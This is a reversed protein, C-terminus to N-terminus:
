PPRTREPRAASPRHFPMRWYTMAERLAGRLRADAAAAAYASAAEIFREAREYHSAIM